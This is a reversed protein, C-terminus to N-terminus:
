PSRARGPAAVPNGRRGADRVPGVFGDRARSSAAARGRDGGLDRRARGRETAAMMQHLAGFSEREFRVCEAASPLRVPSDVRRVEVDRFGASSCRRPWCARAASRSRGRSARCRRRCSARAPPHHRGPDLLVPEQGADLVRGRRLTRGASRTASAAGARAAPRSLLDPRRALDRRRLIGGALTDHREGDLERTEVNALGRRARPRRRRLAPDGALHRHGARPGRPGVRRAARSRRSAPAPRSTSCARAPGSARGPRADGRDGPGLWRASCRAGATGPRPPPRGSRAPPRSSSTPISPPPADVTDNM